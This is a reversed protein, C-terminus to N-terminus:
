PTSVFIVFLEPAYVVLTVYVATARVCYNEVTMRSEISSGSIKEKFLSRSKFRLLLCFEGVLELCETSTTM